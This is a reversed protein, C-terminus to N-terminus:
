SKDTNLAETNTLTVDAATVFWGGSHIITLVHYFIIGLLAQFPHEQDTRAQRGLVSEPVWAKQVTHEATDLM